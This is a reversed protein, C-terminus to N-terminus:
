ARTAVVVSTNYCGCPMFDLLYEKILEQSAKSKRTMQSAKKLICNLLMLSEADHIFSLRAKGYTTHELAFLKGELSFSFGYWIDALLADERTKIKKFLCGLRIFDRLDWSKLLQSCKFKYLRKKLAKIIPM